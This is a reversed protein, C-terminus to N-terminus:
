TKIHSIVDQNPHGRYFLTKLIEVVPKDFFCFCKTHTIVISYSQENYQDM